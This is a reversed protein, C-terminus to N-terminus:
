AEDTQPAPFAGGTPAGAQTEAALATIEALVSVALSHPDRTSHILGIPGRLRQREEVPIGIEALRALREAQAARSGQAGIYFAPSPLVRSLIEPEVDHDHYFLTVATRADLAIEDLGALGSLDRCPLGGEQAAALTAGDHSALVVGAGGAQALAAFAVAEPGAGFVVHRLAPRFGIAFARAGDSAAGREPGTPQYPGLALRGQPSVLLSLSDRAHRRAQLEALLARDQVAFLMVEIGGGCPLKLDFYPSGEGYQLRMVGDTQRLKAAQLVLDAEVCGSTIAGAVEDGAGIAMAAGALRYAPGITRTLVAMVVGEGLDFAAQWPDRLAPHGRGSGQGSGQGSASGFGFGCIREDGRM